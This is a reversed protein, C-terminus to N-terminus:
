PREGRENPSETYDCLLVATQEGNLGVKEGGRVDHPFEMFGRLYRGIERMDSDSEDRSSVAEIVVLAIKAKAGQEKYM